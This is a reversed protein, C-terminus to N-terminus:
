SRLCGSACAPVFLFASVYMSDTMCLITCLIMSGYRLVSQLADAGFFGGTVVQRGVPLRLQIVVECLADKGVRGCATHHACLSTCTNVLWERNLRLRSLQAQLENHPLATGALTNNADASATADTATTSATVPLPLELMGETSEQNKGVVQWGSERMFDLAGSRSVLRRQLAENGLKLTRFKVSEPQDLVNDILKVLLAQLDLLQDSTSLMLLRSVRDMQVQRESREPM